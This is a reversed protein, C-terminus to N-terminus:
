GTSEGGIQLHLGHRSHAPIIIVFKPAAIQVRPVNPHVVFGLWTNIEGLRTKELELTHGLRTTNSFHSRSLLTCQPTQPDLSLRGCLRLGLLRYFLRLLLAAMRGWYFQASAMGCTGVHNVWWAGDLEAM